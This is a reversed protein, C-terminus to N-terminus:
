WAASGTHSRATGDVSQLQAGGMALTAFTSLSVLTPALTVLLVNTAQVGCM